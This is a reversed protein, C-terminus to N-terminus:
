ATTGGYSCKPEKNLEDTATNNSNDSSFYTCHSTSGHGDILIMPTQPTTLLLMISPFIYMNLQVDDHILTTM